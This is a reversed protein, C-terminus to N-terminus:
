RSIELIFAVLYLLATLQTPLNDAYYAFDQFLNIQACFFLARSRFLPLGAALGGLTM